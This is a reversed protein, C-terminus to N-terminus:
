AAKPLTSLEPYHTGGRKPIEGTRSLLAGLGLGCCSALLVLGSTLPTFVIRPDLLMLNHSTGLLPFFPVSM